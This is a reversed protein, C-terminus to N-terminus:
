CSSIAKHAGNYFSVVKEFNSRVIRELLSVVLCFVYDKDRFMQLLDLFVEVGSLSAMTPVFKDFRAVNSLTQLIYQLLKLHPLSRNCTQILFFLLDPAKAEAFTSCCTESLRTAVELVCVADMIETLSKSNVLVDLADRTRCGLKMNPTALAKKNAMGIRRAQVTVKKSRKRRVVFGRALGQARMISERVRGFTRRSLFRKTMRQIMTVAIIEKVYQRYERYCHQIKRASKVALCRNEAQESRIRHSRDRGLQGRVYSQLKIAALVNWAFYERAVYGLWIRQIEVAAFVETKLQIRVLFGRICRQLTVAAANVFVYLSRSLYDRYKRQILLASAYEVKKRDLTNRFHVMRAFSQLTVAFQTERRLKVKTLTFRTFSQLCVIAAYRRKYSSIANFRRLAAQIDIAALISLMYEVHVTYCRWTKQIKRASSEFLTVQRSRMGRYVKQITLSASLESAARQKSFTLNRLECQAFFKRVFCQVRIIAGERRSVIRFTLWRRVISQARIICDVSRRYKLKALSGRFCRQIEIASSRRSRLVGRTIAGRFIAQLRLTAVRKNRETEIRCAFLKILCKRALFQRVMSQAILTAKKTKIFRRSLHYSRYFRQIVVADRKVLRFINKVRFGRWFRQVIVAADVKIRRLNKLRQLERRAIWRRWKCQIYNAAAERQKCKTKVLFTRCASQIRRIAVSISRYSKRTFIQRWQSQIRIACYHQFHVKRIALSRRWTTQILTAAFHMAGCHSRVRQGRWSTQISIAAKELTAVHKLKTLYAQALYKRVITQIFTAALTRRRKAKLRKLVMRCNFSRWISQIVVAHRRVAADFKMQFLKRGAIWNRSASQIVIAASNHRKAQKMEIYEDRVLKMRWFSQIETVAARQLRTSAANLRKYNQLVVFRRVCSQVAIIDLVDIRYEVRSCYGRYLRQIHTAAANKRIDQFQHTRWARQVILAADDRRLLTLVQRTALEKRWASQIITAANRM